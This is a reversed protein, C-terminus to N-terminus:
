IVEFAVVKRTCWRGIELYFAPINGKQKVKGQGHPQLRAATGIYAVPLRRPGATLRANSIAHQGVVCKSIDFVYQGSEVETVILTQHNPTAAIANVIDSFSLM